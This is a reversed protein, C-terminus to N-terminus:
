TAKRTPIVGAPVIHRDPEMVYRMHTEPSTHGSLQMSTQLNVGSRALATDYARRFSHFDAPLSKFTKNHLEHRKLGAATLARRLSKAFSVGRYSVKVGKDKGSTRGKRYTGFVPADGSPCGCKLWWQKLYRAVLEPIEFPVWPNAVKKATKPRPVHAERWGVTDVHEWRWALLDSTRMGGLMRSCVALAKLRLRVKKHEIFTLFEDDTLIARKRGDVKGDPMAVKKMLVAAPHDVQDRRYLFDWLLSVKNRVHKISGKSLGREAVRDFVAQLERHGVTRALMTGIVKGVDNELIRKADKFSGQGAVRPDALLDAIGENVTITYSRHGRVAADKAAKDLIALMRDREGRAAELGEPTFPFLYPRRQPDLDQPLRLCYYSRAGKVRKSIYPEGTSNRLVAATARRKSTKDIM